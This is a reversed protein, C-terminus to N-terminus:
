KFIKQKHHHHYCHLEHYKNIIRWYIVMTLLSIFLLISTLIKLLNTSLYKMQDSLNDRDNINQNTLILLYFYIFISFTYTIHILNIRNKKLDYNKRINHRIELIFKICTLIFLIISIIELISINSFIPHKMSLTRKVFSLISIILTLLFYLLLIIEVILRQHHLKKVLDNRGELSKFGNIIIVTESNAQSGSSGSIGSSGSSDFSGSSNNESLINNERYVTTSNSHQNM